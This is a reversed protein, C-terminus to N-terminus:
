SKTNLYWKIRQDSFLRKAQIDGRCFWIKKFTYIEAIDCTCLVLFCHSNTSCTCDTEFRVANYWNGYPVTAGTENPKNKRDTSTFYWGFVGLFFLHHILQSHLPSIDLGNWMFLKGIKTSIQRQLDRNKSSQSTGFIVRHLSAWSYMFLSDWFSCIIKSRLWSLAVWCFTPTCSWIAAKWIQFIFINRM